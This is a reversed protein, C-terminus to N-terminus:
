IQHVFKIKKICIAFLNLATIIIFLMKAINATIQTGNIREPNRYIEM